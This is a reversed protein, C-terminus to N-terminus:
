ENIEIPYGKKKPLAIRKSLKKVEDLDYQDWGWDTKGIPRIWGKKEVITKRFTVQNVKCIRAAEAIYIKAVLDGLSNPKNKLAALMNM